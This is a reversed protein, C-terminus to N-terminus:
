YGKIEILPKPNNREQLEGVIFAFGLLLAVIFVVIAFTNTENM